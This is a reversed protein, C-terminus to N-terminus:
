EEDRFQRAGISHEYKIQFMFLDKFILNLYLTNDAIMDTKKGWIIDAIMDQSVLTLPYWQRWEYFYSDYDATKDNNKFDFKRNLDNFDEVIKKFDNIISDFSPHLEDGFQYKVEFLYVTMHMVDLIIQNEAILPSSTAWHMHLNLDHFKHSMDRKWRLFVFDYEDTKSSPKANFHNNLFYFENIVQRFMLLFKDIDM